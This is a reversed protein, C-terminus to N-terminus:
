QVSIFFFLHEFNSSWCKYTDTYTGTGFKIKIM